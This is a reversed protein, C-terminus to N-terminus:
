LVPEVSPMRLGALFADAIAVHDDDLPSGTAAPLAALVAERNDGYREVARGIATLLAAEQEMEARTMPADHHGALYFDADFALLRELLPFLLATTLRRPGHYIDDYICDGLFVVREEPVFVVSSDHAHDGGVHSIRCTVDGLDINVYDDFIIEPPRIVLESRDPLEAKIMDRCFGIEVGQEVRADLAADSRDLWAMTAVIRATEHHAFTPLELAATGFVHDWHWHTLMAFRPEIERTELERLLISAHAASNGADVILAGRTGAIVGLVPRDTAGDPPLWYTRPALQNLKLNTM